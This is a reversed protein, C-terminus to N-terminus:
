GDQNSRLKKRRAWEFRVIPIAHIASLRGGDSVGAGIGVGAGELWPEM